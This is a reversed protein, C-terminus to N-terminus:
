LLNVGNNIEPVRIACLTEVSQSDLPLELYLTHHWFDGQFGGLAWELYWLWRLVLYNRLEGFLVTPFIKLRM